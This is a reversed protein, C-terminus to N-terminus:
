AAGVTEAHSRSGRRGGGAFCIMTVNHAILGNTPDVTHILKQVDNACVDSSPYMSANVVFFFGAYQTTLKQAIRICVIM